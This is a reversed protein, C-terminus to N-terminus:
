GSLEITATSLYLDTLASPSIRWLYGHNRLKEGKLSLTFDLYVEGIAILQLFRLISPHKCHMMANFQCEAGGHRIVSIYAAESLKTLLARELVELEYELVETNGHKVYARQQDAHLSFGLTDGKSNFSTYLSRRGKSPDDKGYKCILDQPGSTDLWRTPTRSFLTQLTSGYKTKLEIGMFDPAKSSNPKIGLRRELTLGYRGTGNGYVQLPGVRWLQKLKASLIEIPMLTSHGRRKLYELVLARLLSQYNFRPALGDLYPQNEEYLVASINQCKAEWAKETRAPHVCVLARYVDKKKRKRGADQASLMDFYAKICARVESETWPTRKM